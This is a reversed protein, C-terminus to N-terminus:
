TTSDHSQQNLIDRALSLLIESYTPHYWTMKVLDAATNKNHRAMAILHALEPTVEPGIIQTGLIEGTHRDAVLKWLGHTHRKLIGIGIESFYRTAVCPEYGAQRATNETFGVQASPFEDFSVAFSIAAFDVPRREDNVANHGAITGMHTAYHLIQHHGTVDGAVYIHPVTSQLYQNHMPAGGEDLEIGAQEIAMDSTNARRGTAVLIADFDTVEEHGDYSITCRLRDDTATVAQLKSHCHIPVAGPVEHSMRLRENAVEPDYSSLLPGRQLIKVDSGLRNFFTALELGIPGAGIVLLREPVKEITDAKTVIDDSTWIMPHTSDLGPIPPIFPKSGTALIIKTAQVSYVGETTAVEVTHNDLWAITGTLVTTTDDSHDILAQRLRDIHANKTKRITTLPEGFKAGALISKSPMCGAEVCTNKLEPLYVQVILTEPKTQKITRVAASGATGGGLVLVDTQISQNM